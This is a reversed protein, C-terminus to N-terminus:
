DAAKKDAIITKAEEISVGLQDAIAKEAAKKAAREVAKPDSAPPPAPPDTPPPPDAPPPAPPEPPPPTPPTDSGGRVLPLMTGDSFVSWPRGRLNVTAIVRPLVQASM